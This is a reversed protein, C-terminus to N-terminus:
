HTYPGCASDSRNVLLCHINPRCRICWLCCSVEITYVITVATLTTHLCMVIGLIIHARCAAVSVSTYKNKYYMM